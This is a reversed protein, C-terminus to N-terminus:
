VSFGSSPASARDQPRFRAAQDGPEVALELALHRLVQKVFLHQLAESPWPPGSEPAMRAPLALIRM